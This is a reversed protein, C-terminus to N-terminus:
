TVDCVFNYRLLNVNWNYHIWLPALTKKMDCLNKISNLHRSVDTYTFDRIDSFVWIRGRVPKSGMKGWRLSMRKKQQQWRSIGGVVWVRPRKNNLFKFVKASLGLSVQAPPFYTPIPWLLIYSIKTRLAFSCLLYRELNKSQKACGFRLTVKAM